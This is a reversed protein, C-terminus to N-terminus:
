GRCSPRENEIIVRCREIPEAGWSSKYPEDGRLFNWADYGEDFAHRLAEYLLTRGFGLSEYDPDFASMYAYIKNRYRFSMIVAAVENRFRLAFFRLRDQAAMEAAAARLFGESRNAAIMGSEGQERWRATHLRILSNLMEPTVEDTAEFEVAGMERARQSYRRLNRRLDKSRGHWFQEFDGTLCTESCQMDAHVRAGRLKQLPTAASLDQWVCIEWGCSEDLHTQLAALVDASFEAEIPPDLYDSIGSGILTLQQRNEWTHRFCPVIAVLRAEQWFAPVHLTGSGFHEWWTLLWSPLQFPTSGPDREVLGTWEPQIERLRALDRVIELKV